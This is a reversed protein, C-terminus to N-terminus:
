IVYFKRQTIIAFDDLNYPVEDCPLPAHEPTAGSFLAADIPDMFFLADAALFLGGVLGTGTLV